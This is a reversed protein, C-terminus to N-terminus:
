WNGFIIEIQYNPVAIMNMFDGSGGSEAAAVQAAAGPRNVGFPFHAAEDRHAHVVDHPVVRVSEQSGRSCWWVPAKMM